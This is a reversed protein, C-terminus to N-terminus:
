LKDIVMCIGSFLIISVIVWLMQDEDLRAFRKVTGKIIFLMILAVLAKRMEITM